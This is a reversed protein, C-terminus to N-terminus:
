LLRPYAAIVLEGVSDHRANLALAVVTDLHHGDHLVCVVGAEAVLHGAEIRSRTTETVWLLQLAHDVHSVRMPEKNEEIHDMRVGGLVDLVAEVLEISGVTAEEV